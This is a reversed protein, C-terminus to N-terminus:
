QSQMRKIETGVDNFLKKLGQNDDEGLWDNYNQIQLERSALSSRLITKYVESNKLEQYNLPKMESWFQVSEFHNLLVPSATGFFYEEQRNNLTEIWGVNYIALGFRISDNTITHLGYSKLSEFASNKLTPINWSSAISFHVNLSDHYPLDQNLYDLIIQISRKSNTNGDIAFGLQWMNGEIGELLDVLLKQEFLDAKREENWNNISLAILIGIVVLIIEGIAYKLYKGTKNKEMLDYRIKRFFKIM